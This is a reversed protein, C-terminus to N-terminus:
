GRWEPAIVARLIRACPLMGARELTRRSATNAVACRAAPERGAQRCARKLEQILYSGYGRRRHAEDVEMYLDGYPPNYHTLFGGTAVAAGDRELLWEGVPEVAHPFLGQREGEEVRRFVVGPNPLTTVLADAFLVTDSTIDRGCDYLLLSLLPDNTQAEIRTAGTAAILRRLYRVASGRFAPLLFLEKIVERGRTDHDGVSGYGAIAGGERILYSRNFGRQHHSDHVIQCDMEGRYLERLDRIASLEAPVIEM